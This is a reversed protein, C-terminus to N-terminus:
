TPSVQIIIRPHAITSTMTATIEARITFLFLSSKRSAFSFSFSFAFSLAYPTKIVSTIIMDAITKIIPAATPYMIHAFFLPLIHMPQGSALLLEQEPEQWPQLPLQLLTYIQIGFSERVRSPKTEYVLNHWFLLFFTNVFIFFDTIM